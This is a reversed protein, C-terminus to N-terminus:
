SHLPVGLDGAHHLQPCGVTRGQEAVPTVNARVWYHDGNKRRNKVLGTWPLGEQLTAWLDRFAEAPVDPHRIMNHPQGLLEDPHYGSVKIFAPNCYTIYSKLDTTSVLTVGDELVYERGTVPGTNRM